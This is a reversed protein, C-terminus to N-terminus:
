LSTFEETLKMNSALRRHTPTRMSKSNVQTEMMAAKKNTKELFEMAGENAAIDRPNM